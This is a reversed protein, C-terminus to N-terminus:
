LCMWRATTTGATPHLHSLHSHSPNACISPYWIHPYLPVLSLSEHSHHPTINIHTTHHVQDTARHLRQEM